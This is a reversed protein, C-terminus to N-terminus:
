YDKLEEFLLQINEAKSDRFMNQAASTYFTYQTLFKIQSEIWSRTTYSHGLSLMEAYLAQNRELFNAAGLVSLDADALLAELENQPQHVINTAMIMGMISTISKEDFGFRPLEQAVIRMSHLEHQETSVIFGLDHFSAAVRLLSINKPSQQTVHALYEVNRIVEECTHYLNHYTFNNPLQDTLTQIAWEIADNFNPNSM